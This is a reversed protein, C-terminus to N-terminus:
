GRLLEWGRAVSPFAFEGPSLSVLDYWDFGAVADLAAASEPNVAVASFMLDCVPYAVGLYEYRNTVSCLYSVRDLELGVEERVERRLADEATEGYDVFGGPVALKGKAPENARRIFLVRGRADSIFGGAAVAPNFFLVFGCSECRFPIAGTASSAAGCKPCFRFCDPPLLM